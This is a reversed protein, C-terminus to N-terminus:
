KFRFKDYFCKTIIFMVNPSYFIIDQSLYFLVILTAMASTYSPFPSTQNFIINLIMCTQKVKKSIWFQLCSLTPLYFIISKRAQYVFSRNYWVTAYRLIELLNSYRSSFVFTDNLLKEFIYIFIWCNELAFNWWNLM